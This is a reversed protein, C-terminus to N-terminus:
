HEAETVSSSDYKFQAGATPTADFVARDARGTRIGIEDNNENSVDFGILVIAV